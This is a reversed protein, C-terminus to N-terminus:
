RTDWKHTERMEFTNLFALFENLEGEAATIAAPGRSSITVLLTTNGKVCMAGVITHGPQVKRYMGFDFNQAPHKELEDTKWEPQNRRATRVVNRITGETDVDPEPNASAVIQTTSCRIIAQTKPHQALLLTSPNHPLLKWEKPVAYLIEYNRYDENAGRTAYRVAGAAIVGALGVMAVRVWTGTM